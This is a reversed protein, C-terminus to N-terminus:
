IAGMATIADAVKRFGAINAGRSYDPRDGDRGEELTVAHIRRMIERLDADVEAASAPRRHSNQSMELGSVAVGGANTAKGPAYVIGSRGIVDAAEPTLPMNAGEAVIRTGGDVLAQAMDGDIENQTACPLAIEAEETWPMAGEAFTLGLDRPPSSIDEGAAKRARVWDVAHASFGDPARLTGSTDSLTVVRAGLAAAKLAAHTAVNGKGSIAVRKGELDERREALMAEVFYVLGYGTAQTRVASGGFSQGKGTLAGAFAGAHLKYAAFLWGIERTGVNIDGAPIDRNPGIFPALHLMFSQCFRMIEADSRGRPDFDSGGKAGGLPLGTLANKFVQEFGLFKLVSPTVSPHFRLGGKYPGIANSYQVRWGRNVEVEGADDQWTVRFSVIRDPETLRELVKAAAYDAHAKEITIVDRTVHEVAQHFETEGPTRDRLRDMFEDTLRDRRM